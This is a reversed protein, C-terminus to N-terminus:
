SGSTLSIRQTLFHIFQGLRTRIVSAISDGEEPFATKETDPAIARRLELNQWVFRGLMAVIALQGMFLIPSLTAASLWLAIAYITGVGSWALDHKRYVEPFFFAVMYLGFSGLGVGVALLNALRNVWLHAM